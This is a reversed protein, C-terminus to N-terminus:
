MMRYWSGKFVSGLALLHIEKVARTFDTYADLRREDWRVM